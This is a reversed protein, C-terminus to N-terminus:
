SSGAKMTCRVPLNEAIPPYNEDKTRRYQAAHPVQWGGANAVVRDAALAAALVDRCRHLRHRVGPDDGITREAPLPSAVQRRVDEMSTQRVPEALLRHSRLPLRRWPHSSDRSSCSPLLCSRKADVSTIAALMMAATRSARSSMLLDEGLSVAVIASLTDSALAIRSRTTRYHKSSVGAHWVAWDPLSLAPSAKGHRALWRERGHGLVPVRSVGNTTISPKQSRPWGGTSDIVERWMPEDRTGVCPGPCGLQHRDLGM